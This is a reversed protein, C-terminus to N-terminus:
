VAKRRDGAAEIAQRVLRGLREAFGSSEDAQNRSSLDLLCVPAEGEHYLMVVHDYRLRRRAYSGGLLGYPHESGLNSRYRATVEIHEVEVRSTPRLAREIAMGPILGCLWRTELRLRGSPRHIRGERSVLIAWDSWGLRTGDDRLIYAVGGHWWDWVGDRHAACKAGVVALVTLALALIILSLARQGHSTEPGGIFVVSGAVIAVLIIVSVIPPAWSRPLM